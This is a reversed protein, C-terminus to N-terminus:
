HGKAEYLNCAALVSGPDSGKRIETALEESIEGDETAEGKKNQELSMDYAAQAVKDDLLETTPVLVIRRDQLKALPVTGVVMQRDVSAIVARIARKQKNVFRCDGSTNIKNCKHKKNNCYMCEGMLHALEKVLDGISKLERNKDLIPVARSWTGEPLANQAM